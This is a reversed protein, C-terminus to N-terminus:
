DFWTTVLCVLFCTNTSQTNIKSQSVPLINCISWQAAPPCPCRGPWSGARGRAASQPSWCCSGRRRCAAAVPMRLFARCVSSETESEQCMKPRTGMLWCGYPFFIFAFFLWWIFLINSGHWSNSLLEPTDTIHPHQAAAPSMSLQACSLLCLLHDRYKLKFRLNVFIKCDRLLRKWM